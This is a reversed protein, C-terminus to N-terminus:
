VPGVVVPPFLRTVIGSGFVRVVFSLAVYLLGSAALGCLTGPVGWAAVGYTIAPVFAFSSALFVPVKMGTVAQFILTGIGATCLAVGPDLGTLLPVLVLAGFAVFLIQVGQFLTKFGAFVDGADM